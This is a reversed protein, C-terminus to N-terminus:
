RSNLASRRGCKRNGSSSVWACARASMAVARTSSSLRIRCRRRIQAVFQEFKKDTDTCFYGDAFIYDRSGEGFMQGLNSNWATFTMEPLDPCNPAAPQPAPTTTAPQPAPAATQARAAGNALAAIGIAAGVLSGIRRYAIFNKMAAGM